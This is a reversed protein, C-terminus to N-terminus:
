NTAICEKCTPLTCNVEQRYKSLLKLKLTKKVRHIKDITKINRPLNNVVKCLNIDFQLSDITRNMRPIIIENVRRLGLGRNDRQMLNTIAKPLLGKEFKWAILNMEQIYLDAVKLIKFDKHIRETHVINIGLNRLAKKNIKCLKNYYRNRSKGWISIGYRLHSMIFSNYLLLKTKTPLLKKFKYLAYTGKSLKNIVKEIHSSWELKDDIEVGLLM